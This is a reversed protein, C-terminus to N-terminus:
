KLLTGAAVVVLLAALMLWSWRSAFNFTYGVGFRKAVFVAPDAPNFYFIGLKWCADPTRDGAPTAAARRLARIMLVLYVAVIVLGAGALRNARGPGLLALWAQAAVLYGAVVILQVTLRRFRRGETTSARRSWYLIGWGMLMFLLSVAASIAIWGYVSEPTRSIWRDPGRFGWHVPIQSPLRDWHSSAWIALAGLSAAPVLAAVIGGPFKESPAALDAEMVRTPPASHDLTRRRAMALATTFGAVQLLEWGTHGTALALGIALAASVSVFLRFRHVIRRAEPSLRFAPDITVGFLFDPRTVNPLFLVLVTVSLLVIVSSVLM